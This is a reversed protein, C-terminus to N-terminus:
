AAPVANPVTPPLALTGGTTTNASTAITTADTLLTNYLFTLTSGGLKTWATASALPGNMTLAVDTGAGMDDFILGNITYDAGLTLTPATGAWNPSDGM